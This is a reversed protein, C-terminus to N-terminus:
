VPDLNTCLGVLVESIFTRSIQVIVNPIKETSILAQWENRTRASVVMRIIWWQVWGRSWIPFWFIYSGDVSLDIELPFIQDESPVICTLSLLHPPLLFCLQSPANTLFQM